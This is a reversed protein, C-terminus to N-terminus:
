ATVAKPYPLSPLKLLKRRARREAPTGLIYVYRHKPPPCAIMDQTVLITKDDAISM